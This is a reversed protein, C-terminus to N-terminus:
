EILTYYVRLALKKDALSQNDNFILRNVSANNQNLSLIIGTNGEDLDIIRATYSTLLANANSFGGGEENYVRASSNYVLTINGSGVDNLIPDIVQIDGNEDAAFLFLAAPPTFINSTKELDPVLYLEVRHIAVSSGVEKAFDDFKELDPFTLRTTIGTGAQAVCLNNTLNTSLPNQPSLGELITGSLDSKINHFRQFLFLNQIKSTSDGEYHYYLKLFTNEFDNVDFGLMVGDARESSIKVGKLMEKFQAKTFLNGNSGKKLIDEGLADDLKIKLSKLSDLDDPYTVSGLVSNAKVTLSSFQYYTLSDVMGEDLAEVKLTQSLLTDGYEYNIALSLVLSDYIPELNDNNRFDISDTGAIFQVYAEASYTGLIPDEVSGVLLNTPSSTNISDFQVIETNVTITDTYLTQIIVDDLQLDSGFENTIEDCSSL